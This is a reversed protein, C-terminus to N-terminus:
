PASTQFENLLTNQIADKGLLLLCDGDFKYGGMNRHFNNLGIEAAINEATNQDVGDNIVLCTGDIPFDELLQASYGKQELREVLGSGIQSASPDCQVIISIDCLKVVGGKSYDTPAEIPQTNSIAKSTLTGEPQLLFSPIFLAIGVILIASFVVATITKQKM